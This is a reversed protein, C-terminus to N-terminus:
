SIGQAFVCLRWIKIQWVVKKKKISDLGGDDRTWLFIEPHNWKMQM